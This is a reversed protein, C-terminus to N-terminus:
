WAPAIQPDRARRQQQQNQLREQARCKLVGEDFAQNRSWFPANGRAAVRPDSKSSGLSTSCVSFVRELNELELVFPSDLLM